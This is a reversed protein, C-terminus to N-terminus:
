TCGYKNSARRHNRSGKTKQPVFCLKKMNSRLTPKKLFPLCILKVYTKCLLLSNIVLSVGM